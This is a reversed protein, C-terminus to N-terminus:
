RPGQDTGREGPTLTGTAGREGGLGAGAPDFEDSRPREGSVGVDQRLGASNQDATTEELPWDEPEITTRQGENTM